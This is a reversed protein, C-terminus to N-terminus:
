KQHGRHDSPMSIYLVRWLWQTIYKKKEKSSHDSLLQTVKFQSKIAEHAAKWKKESACM